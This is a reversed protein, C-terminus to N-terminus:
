KSSLFFFYPNFFFPPGTRWVVTGCVAIWRGPHVASVVQTVVSSFAPTIHTATPAESRTSEPPAMAGALIVIMLGPSPRLETPPRFLVIQCRGATLPACHSKGANPEAMDATADFVYYYANHLTKNHNSIEQAHHNKKKKEERGFGTPM